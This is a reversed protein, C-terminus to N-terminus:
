SLPGRVCQSDRARMKDRNLATMALRHSSKMMYYARTVAPLCRQTCLGLVIANRISAHAAATPLSAAAIRAETQAMGFFIVLGYGILKRVEPDVLIQRQGRAFRYFNARGEM